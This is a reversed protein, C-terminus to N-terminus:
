KLHFRYSEDNSYCSSCKFDVKGCNEEFRRQDAFSKVCVKRIQYGDCLKLLQPWVAESWCYDSEIGILIALKPQWDDWKNNEKKGWCGLRKMGDKTIRAVSACDVVFALSLSNLSLLDCLLRRQGAAFTSSYIFETSWGCFIAEHKHWGCFTMNYEDCQGYDAM